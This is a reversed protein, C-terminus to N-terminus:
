GGIAPQLAQWGRDIVPNKSLYINVEFDGADKPMMRRRIVMLHRVLSLPTVGILTRILLTTLRSCILVGWLCLRAPRM